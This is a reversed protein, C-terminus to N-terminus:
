VTTPQTPEVFTAPDVLVWRIETAVELVAAPIPNQGTEVLTGYKYAAYGWHMSEEPYM